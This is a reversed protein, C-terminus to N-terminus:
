DCIGAETSSVVVNVIYDGSIVKVNVNAKKLKLISEKTESKLPTRCILFGAFIFDGEVDERKLKDFNSYSSYKYALTIM